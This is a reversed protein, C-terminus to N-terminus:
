SRPHIYIFDDDEFWTGVPTAEPPNMLFANIVQGNHRQQPVKKYCLPENGEGQCYFIEGETVEYFMAAVISPLSRLLKTDAGRIAPNGM